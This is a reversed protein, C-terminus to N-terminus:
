AAWGTRDPPGTRNPRSGLLTDIAQGVEELWCDEETPDCRLVAVPIENKAGVDRVIREGEDLTERAVATGGAEYVFGRLTSDVASGLFQELRPGHLAAVRSPAGDLDAMLWCAVTVHELAGSLSALRDPDGVVPEAGAQEVEKCQETTAVVVRAAHGVGSLRQALMLSRRGDGIMLIRAMPAIKFDQAGRGDKSAAGLSRSARNRAASSPGELRRPLPQTVVGM